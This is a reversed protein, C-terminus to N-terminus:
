YKERRPTDQPDSNPCRRPFAAVLSGCVDTFGGSSSALFRVSAATRRNRSIFSRAPLGGGGTGGELSVNLEGGGCDEGGGGGRVELWRSGSSNNM